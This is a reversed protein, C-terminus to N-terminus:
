SRFPAIPRVLAALLAARHQTALVATIFAPSPHNIVVNTYSASGSMSWNASLKANVELEPGCSRADGANAEYTYSCPIAVTEQVNSWKIYYFDSNITLWHDFLKAKEGPTAGIWGPLGRTSPQPDKAFRMRSVYNLCNCLQSCFIVYIM